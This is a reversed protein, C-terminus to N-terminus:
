CGAPGGPDAQGWALPGEEFTSVAMDPLEQQKKESWCKKRIM